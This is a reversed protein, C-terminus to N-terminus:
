EFEFGIPEDELLFLDFSNFRNFFNDIEVSCRWLSTNVINITENCVTTNMKDDDVLFTTSLSLQPQQQQQQQIHITSPCCDDLMEEDLCEESEITWTKNLFDSM